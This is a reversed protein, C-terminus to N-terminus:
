YTTGVRVPSDMWNPGTSQQRQSVDVLWLSGLPHVEV